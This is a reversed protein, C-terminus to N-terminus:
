GRRSRYGANYLLTGLNGLVGIHAGDRKIVEICADKAEDNRGLLDLICARSFLLSIDDPTQALREEIQTLEHPNGFAPLM